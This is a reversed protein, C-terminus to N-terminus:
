WDDVEIVSSSTLDYGLVKVINNLPNLFGKIFITNYDLFNRIEDIFNDSNYAIVDTQLVNPETLFLIKVKDGSKIESFRNTLNNKRIYDNYCISARCMWPISKDSKLNYDVRSVSGYMCLNSIDVNTIETKLTDVWEVLANKDRTFLYDISEELKEKCWVPTTSRALELGMVKMHPNDEPYRVGESDRVRAIYKKKAVFCCKDAICERKMKISDIDYANFFESFEKISSQIVPQIQTLEFKDIIDVYENISRNPYKEMIRDVIPEIHFYFSDTDGYLVYPKDSKHKSQLYNEVNNATMQIFYRGNGTIAQAIKENFLCFHINAIAGYLSNILIKKTMQQTLLKSANYNSRDKLALLDDTSMQELEERSYLKDYDM